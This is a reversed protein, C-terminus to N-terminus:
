QGAPAPSPAPLAMPEQEKPGPVAHRSRRLSVARSRAAMYAREALRCLRYVLPRYPVYVEGIFQRLQGGFRRKFLYLGNNPAHEETVEVVRRLRM